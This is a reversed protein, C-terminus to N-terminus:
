AGNTATIALLRKPTCILLVAPPPREEALSKATKWDLASAGQDALHSHWTGVDFLSGGSDRYRQGVLKKMGKTGLVFLAASRKSDEPAPLIDVVTIARLRSNCTGVLLGGTEVTPYATIEDRIRCAVDESIDLTWDGGEVKVRHFAPVDMRRWSTTLQARDRVGIALQGMGCADTTVMRTLEETAAATMASLRADTMPMTLSGCGEGIQVQTLGIDPDFLLQRERKSVSAYLSAELQSLSPNGAAGETFVFAGDGRGFLTVEAVTAKIKGGVRASLTERVLRSATTNIVLGTSPPVIRKLEASNNLAPIVDGVFSNPTDGLRSLEEALETAKFHPFAGRALAHRAMNHPQLLGNDTVALIRAGSRALHMALKSGVSGCGVLSTEPIEQSESISRFLAASAMDVQRLPYVPTEANFAPPPKIARPRQLNLWYAVLEINSQRGMLRYPRRVCLVVAIPLASSTFTKEFRRELDNVLQRFQEGMGYSEARAELEGLTTVNDALIDASVAKHSPWLVATVTRGPEGSKQFAFPFTEDPGIKAALEHGVWFGPTAEDVDYLKELFRSRLWVAGSDKRIRTTILHDRDLFVRALVAARNVPEWGHRDNALRGIAARALWICMQDVIAMIGADVLDHQAFFEDPSGDVLCPVPLSKADGPALHPMAPPFDPRLRFSPCRRPYQSHLIVQVRETTLVGTESIGDVSAANPMEVALDMWLVAQVDSVEAIGHDGVYPRGSVVRLFHDAHRQM